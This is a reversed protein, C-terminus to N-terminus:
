SACFTTKRGPHNQLAAKRYAAKIEDATATRAVDLEEYPQVEPPESDLPEEFESM